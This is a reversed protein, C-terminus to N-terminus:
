WWSQLSSLKASRKGAASYVAPSFSPTSRASLSGAVRRLAEVKAESGLADIPDEPRYLVGGPGAVLTRPAQADGVRAIARASGSAALLAAADIEDSYAFGTKEGSIARM